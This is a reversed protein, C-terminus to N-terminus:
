IGGGVQQQVMVTAGSPLELTVREAAQQQARDPGDLYGRVLQGDEWRCAGAM